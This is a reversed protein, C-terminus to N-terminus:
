VADMSCNATDLDIDMILGQDPSYITVLKSEKDADLFASAYQGFDDHPGTSLLILEKDADLFTSTYQATDNPLLQFQGIDLDTSFLIGEAAELPYLTTTWIQVEVLGEFWQYIAAM